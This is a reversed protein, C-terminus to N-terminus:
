MWLASRKGNLLVTHQGDHIRAIINRCFRFAADIAGWADESYAVSYEREAGDSILTIRCHYDDDVTKVPAYIRLVITEQSERVIIYTRESIIMVKGLRRPAPVIPMKAYSEYALQTEM